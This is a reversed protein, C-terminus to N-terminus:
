DDRDCVALLSKAYREARLRVHAQTILRWFIYIFVLSVAFALLHLFLTLDLKNLKVYLEDFGQYQRIMLVLSLLSCLVSIVIGLPKLVLLNRAFGHAVLDIYVLKYKERDRTNERLYHVASEFKKDADGPDQGEEDVSPLKLDTIRKQLWNHIRIKTNPDIRDDRHRLLATTPKGGWQEFLTKELENGKNSLANSLLAFFGFTALLTIITVGWGQSEPIWVLILVVAPFVVFLAPRIRANIVYHDFYKSLTKMKERDLNFSDM